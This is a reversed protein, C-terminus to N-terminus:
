GRQDDDDVVEGRVVPGNAILHVDVKPGSGHVVANTVLESLVLRLDELRAEPLASRLTLAADRAIAVADATRDLRLHVAANM